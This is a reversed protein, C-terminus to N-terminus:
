DDTIIAIVTIIITAIIGTIAVAAMGDPNEIRETAMNVTIAIAVVSVIIGIWRPILNWRPINNM